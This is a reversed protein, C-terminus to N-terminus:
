FPQLMSLIVSNLTNLTHNFQIHYIHEVRTQTSLTGARFSTGRDLKLLAYVHYGFAAALGGLAWSLVSIARLIIDLVKYDGHCWTVASSVAQGTLRGCFTGSLGVSCHSLINTKTAYYQCAVVGHTGISRVQSRRPVMQYLGLFRGM